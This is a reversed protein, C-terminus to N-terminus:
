LFYWRLFFLAGTYLTHQERETTNYSSSPTPYNEYTIDPNGFTVYNLSIEGGVSFKSIPFYEAGIVGGFTIDTEKTIKKDDQKINANPYNTIYVNEYTSSVIGFELRPGLYLILLNSLSYRYTGRIGLTIVSADNSYTYPTGNGQITPTTASSSSASFLGISPEFRFRNTVNIPVYFVVASTNNSWISQLNELSPNIYVLESGKTPDISIGLGVLGLTDEQAHL